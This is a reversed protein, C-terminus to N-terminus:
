VPTHNLKMTLSAEDEEQNFEQICSTAALLELRMIRVFGCPLGVRFAKQIGSNLEKTTLIMVSVKHQHIKLYGSLDPFLFLLSNFLGIRDTHSERPVPLCVQHRSRERPLNRRLSVDRRRVCAPREEEGVSRVHFVFWDDTLPAPKRESTHPEWCM